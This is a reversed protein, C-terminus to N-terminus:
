EASIASDREYGEIENGSIEVSKCGEMVFPRGIYRCDSVNPCEVRIVNDVITLPSTSKAFVVPNGFTLFTNNSIRVNEHVPYNEDVKSNSPNMAIVANAPGRLYACDVFLNNRIEVDRVPGSEYWAETDSEILIASMGTRVFKNGSIRVKRPTTVLVGRTHTHTFTNNRIEVEPTWTMNEVCKDELNFKRPLPRRLTIEVERDSLREVAKVENYHVRQMSKSDVIAITDGPVYIKFGYSQAHMFRLRLRNDGERGVVRLNTGHVNICDDHAGSFFCNSVSVKGACGSFHTFDASSAMIRGGLVDPACIVRNITIDRSLQNFIGMAHMYKIHLDTLTVGSSENIFLGVHDRTVDRVTITHGAPAAFDAPTAFRVRGDGLDTAASSNLVSWVESFTLHDNSPNYEICEYRNEGGRNDCLMLHGKSNVQYKSDPHFRVVTSGDGSEEVTMESMPPRVYDLSLNKITINSCNLVAITIMNGHYLLTAGNGDVCVDNLGELLIGIRKVKSPCETESSTNSIFLTRHEAADPKIDYRRSEFSLVKAKATRCAEVAKNINEYDSVFITDSAASASLASTLICIASLLKKM